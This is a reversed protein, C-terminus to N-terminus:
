KNRAAREEIETKSQKGVFDTDPYDKLLKMFKEYAAKKNKASEDKLADDFLKKAEVERKEKAAVKPDVKPADPTKSSDTSKPLDVVIKKGGHNECLDDQYAKNDRPNPSLAKKEGEDDQYIIEYTDVQHKTVVTDCEGTWVGKDYKKKCKKVDITVKTPEISTLTYGTNFDINVARGGIFVRHVTVVSGSGPPDEWAGIKDGALQIHKIQVPGKGKEYKELTLYAQGNAAGAPKSPSAFSIKWISPTSVPTSNVTM